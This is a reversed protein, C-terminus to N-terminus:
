EMRNIDLREDFDWVLFYLGKFFFWLRYDYCLNVKILEIILYLVIWFMYIVGIKYFVRIVGLKIKKYLIWIM